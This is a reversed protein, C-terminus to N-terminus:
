YRYSNDRWKRSENYAHEDVDDDSRQGPKPWTNRDDEDIEPDFPNTIADGYGPFTSYNKDRGFKM